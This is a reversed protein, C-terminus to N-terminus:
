DVKFISVKSNKDNKFNTKQSKSTLLLIDNKFKTIDNDTNSGGPRYASIFDIPGSVSNVSVGICELNKTKFSPLLKNPLNKRVLVLRHATYNPHSFSKNENLHTENTLAIDIENM